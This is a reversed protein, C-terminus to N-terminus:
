KIEEISKKLKKLVIGCLKDIDNIEISVKEFIEKLEPRGVTTGRYKAMENKSITLEKLITILDIIDKYSNM